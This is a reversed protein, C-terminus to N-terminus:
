KQLCNRAFRSLDKVIICNIKKTRLDNEMRRFEPRDFNTGTFGDDIYTSYVRIDKNQEVFRKLIERQSSISESEYKDDDRSLRLYLGADWIKDPDRDKDKIAYNVMVDVESLRASTM